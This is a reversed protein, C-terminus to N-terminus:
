LGGSPINEFFDNKKIDPGVLSRYLGFLSNDMEGGETVMWGHDTQTKHWFMAESAAEIATKGGFSPLPQHWNMQIRNEPYLHIYIKPINWIGLDSVQDPFSLPDAALEACERGLYSVAKHMGHGYEGNIDHLLLVDPKYKRIFGTYMELCKERGGWKRLAEEMDTTSFDQLVCHIPHTRIGCAWLADLLELRRISRNMAACVVLINKKREGGYYPLAGGFWLLEDDPHGSFLMLDVKDGPKQWLQVTDPPTGPTIVKMECINLQTLPDDRCVLRLDSLNPVPIYQAFFDGECDSVTVWDGSSNRKQINLALPLTHWQIYVAGIVEGAPATIQLGRTGERIGTKFDRAYTGDTLDHSAGSHGNFLCEKSIDRGVVASDRKSGSAAFASVSLNLLLLM